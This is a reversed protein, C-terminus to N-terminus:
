VEEAIPIPEPEYLDDQLDSLAESVEDLKDTVKVAKLEYRRELAKKICALLEESEVADPAFALLDTELQMQRQFRPNDINM